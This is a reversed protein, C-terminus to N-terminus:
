ELTVRVSADGCQIEDGSHIRVGRPDRPVPMLTEGRVVRTGRGSGEDLLRYEARSKDYKLRAHARSVTANRDDFAVHNRRVRGKSDTPEATRGILITPERFMYVKKTATGKLVTVKLLPWSPSTADGGDARAHYDISFLQAPTWGPPAKKLFSVRIDLARSVDCRLERLRERVRPELDAFVKDLPARELDAPALLRVVIRDYPLARRELGLIVVQQEIADVVAARIELPPAGPGLSPDLFKKVARFRQKIDVIRVPM